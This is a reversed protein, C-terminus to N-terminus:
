GATVVSLLRIEITLVQEDDTPACTDFASTFLGFTSEPTIHRGIYEQIWNTRNDGPQVSRGNSGEAM